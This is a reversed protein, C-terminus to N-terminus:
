SHLVLRDHQPPLFHTLHAGVLPSFEYRECTVSVKVEFHAAVLSSVLRGHSLFVDVRESSFTGLHGLHRDLVYVLGLLIRLGLLRVFVRKCGLVGTAEDADVVHDVVDM